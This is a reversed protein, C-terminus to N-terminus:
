RQRNVQYVYSMSCNLADAIAEVTMESHTLLYRIQERRTSQKKATKILSTKGNKNSFLTELIQSAQKRTLGDVDGQYGERALWDIQKKTPKLEEDTKSSRPTTKVEPESPQNGNAQEYVALLQDIQNLEAQLQERRMQLQARIANIDITTSM